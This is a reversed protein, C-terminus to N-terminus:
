YSYRNPSTNPSLNQCLLFLFDLSHVVCHQINHCCNLWLQILVSVVGDCSVMYSRCTVPYRTQQEFMSCHTQQQYRVSCLSQQTSNSACVAVYCMLKCASCLVPGSQCYIGLITDPYMQVRGSSQPSGSRAGCYRTSCQKIQTRVVRGYTTKNAITAIVVVLDDISMTRKRM